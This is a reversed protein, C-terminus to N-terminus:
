LALEGKYLMEKLPFKISLRFVAFQSELTVVKDALSIPDASRPFFLLVDTPVDPPGTFLHDCALPAKRARELRSRGKISQLMAANPDPAAEGPQVKPPPMLPLGRLRIVYFQGTLEPLEPGGALRVPSATEWRALVPFQLPQGLDPKPPPPVPEGIPVSKAGGPPVGPRIDPLRVNQGASGPTSDKKHELRVLGERAWPSQWLLLDKEAATWAAPEKTEWFQKRAARLSPCVTWVAAAGM